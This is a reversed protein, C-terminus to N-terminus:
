LEVWGSHGLPLVLVGHCVADLSVDAENSLSVSHNGNSGSMLAIIQTQEVHLTRLGFRVHHLSNGSLGM